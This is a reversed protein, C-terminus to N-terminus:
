TGRGRVPYGKRRSMIRFLIIALVIDLVIVSCYTIANSLAMNRYYQPTNLYQTSIVYGLFIVGIVTVMIDCILIKEFGTAPDVLGPIHYVSILVAMPAIFFYTGVVLNAPDAKMLLFYGALIVLVPIIIRAFRSTTKKLITYIISFVILNIVTVVLSIAFLVSLPEWM